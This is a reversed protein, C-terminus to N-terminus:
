SGPDPGRLQAARGEQAPIRQLEVLAALVEGGLAPKGITALPHMYGNVFNVVGVPSDEVADFADALAIVHVLDADRTEALTKSVDCGVGVDVVEEVREVPVVFHHQEAAERM